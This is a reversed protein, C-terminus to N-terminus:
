WGDMGIKEIIKPLKHSKGLLGDNLVLMAGGRVRNTEISSIDRYGSVEEKETPEGTVEIPLNRVTKRIEEDSSPYQLHVARKYLDVEEIYREVEDNSPNYREIHLLRRVFDGVLVTLGAETGGAARIPGAFYISLYRTSDKATKIKVKAIGELPAATIGGSLIALATRIAQEAAVEDAMKGFKEYIIDKAIQFAIEERELNEQLLRIVQAVGPPGVLGEVRAALDKALTIEPYSAPDLNKERSKKALAYLREVAEEINKFYDSSLPDIM